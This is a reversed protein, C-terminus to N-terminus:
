PFQRPRCVGVGLVSGGGTPLCSGASFSDQRQQEQTRALWAGGGTLLHSPFQPPGKEVAEKGGRLEVAILLSLTQVYPAHTTANIGRHQAISCTQKRKKRGSFFYPILLGLINIITKESAQKSHFNKFSCLIPDNTTATQSQSFVFKHFAWSVVGKGADRTRLVAFKKENGM